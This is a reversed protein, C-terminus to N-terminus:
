KKVKHEPLFQADLLDEVYNVEHPTASGIYIGCPICDENTLVMVKSGKGCKTNGVGGGKAEVFMRGIYYTSKPKFVEYFRALWRRLVEEFVGGKNFYQFWRHVTSRSPFEKPLSRWQAGTRLIWIMGGILQEMDWKSKRVPKIQDTKCFGGAMELCEAVICM